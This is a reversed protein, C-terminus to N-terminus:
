GLRRQALEWIMEPLNEAELAEGHSFLLRTPKEEDLKAKLWTLYAKTDKLALMWFTRGLSFGPAAKLMKLLFGERGEVPGPANFFADCVIWTRGGESPVSLFTEGTKTGESVLYHFGEPLDAQADEAAKLGKHGKDSLRPLAQRAAVVTAEPYHERYRPLSLHHFYNPAFLIHPTGYKDVKDFTESGLWTPSHVLLRGEGLPVLFMGLSWGSKKKRQLHVVSQTM